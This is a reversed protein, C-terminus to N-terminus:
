EDIFVRRPTPAVFYSVPNLLLGVVSYKSFDVAPPSSAACARENYPTYTECVLTAKRNNWALQWEEDNTILFARTGTDLPWDGSLTLQDSEFFETVAVDHTNSGGGCSTLAFTAALALPWQQLRRIMM